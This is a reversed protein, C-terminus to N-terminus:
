ASASASSSSSSSGSGANVPHDVGVARPKGPADDIAGPADRRRFFYLYGVDLPPRESVAVKRDNFICWVGNKKAHAVYHGSGTSIGMHSVVAFLDYVGAGDKSAWEAAVPAPAAAAVAVLDDLHDMNEFLWGAAREADNGNNRLALSAKPQDFGMAMIMELAAADVGTADGGGSSSSSSSSSTTAVPLDIDADGMHEMLWNAAAEVSANSVALAARECANRSGMGFDMLQEVLAADPAPAAEAAAPSSRVGEAEPMQVEGERLGTSRLSSLDLEEPVPVSATIKRPTWAETVTYRRMQLKLYTPFSAFRVTRSHPEAKGTAGSVLDSVVSEAAWVDLCAKFPVLLRVPPLECKDGDREKAAEYEAWEARNVAEEEVIPLTIGRAPDRKYRVQKSTLCQMRTEEEFAFLASLSGGTSAAVDSGALGRARAKDEEREVLTMLHEWFEEADQQKNTSFEAHGRAALTRLVLPSVFSSQARKELANAYAQREEATADDSLPALPERAEARVYKDTGLAVALKALQASLSEMAEHASFSSLIDDSPGLYRRRFEPLASLVQFCSNMYCTNGLNKLGILGAGVAPTLIKGDEAIIDGEFRLNLDLQLEAMSKETKHLGMIDIGFRTLHEGLQADTVLDDESPDYSFVDGGEATITGLKVCLPYRKGTDNFHELAHGNGGSGDFQRRGCGIVGTSLNLWLNETLGCGFCKWSKPNPSIKPPSDVVPLAAAFRSESPVFEWKAAKVEEQAGCTVPVHSCPHSV